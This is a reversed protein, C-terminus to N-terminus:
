DVSGLLNIQAAALDQPPIAYNRSALWSDVIQELEERSFDKSTARSEALSIASHPHEAPLQNIDQNAKGGDFIDRLEQDSFKSFDPKQGRTDLKSFAGAQRPLNEFIPLANLIEDMRRNLADLKQQEEDTLAM